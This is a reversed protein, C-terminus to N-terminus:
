LFNEKYNFRFFTFVTKEKQIEGKKEIKWNDYEKYEGVVRNYRKISGNRRVLGVLVNALIM